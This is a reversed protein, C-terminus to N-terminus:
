AYVAAVVASSASKSFTWTGHTPETAIYKRQFVYDFKFTMIKPGVPGKAGIWIHAGTATHTITHWTTEGRLRWGMTTADIVRMELDIPDAVQFSMDLYETMDDAQLDYQQIRNKWEGYYTPQDRHQQTAIGIANSNDEAMIAVMALDCEDGVNCTNCDGFKACTILGTSMSDGTNSVYSRWATTTTEVLLVSNGMMATGGTGLATWKSDMEYGDFGDFFPFVNNGNSTSEEVGPNNFIIQFTLGTTPISPFKVWVEAYNGINEHDVTSISEFSIWYPLVASNTIDYFRVDTFYEQCQDGLYIDIGNSKGSTRHLRFMIQYDTIASGSSNAITHTIALPGEVPGNYAWVPVTDTGTNTLAAGVDSTGAPMSTDYDLSNWATTGDGTKTKKTDTEFGVEGVALVPNASTWESATGNRQQFRVTITM